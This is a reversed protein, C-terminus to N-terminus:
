ENLKEKQLTKVIWSEIQSISVPMYNNADVGVDYQRGEIKKSKGGNPSHVHGHLHFYGENTVTFPKRSPRNEGHWNETDDTGKMGSTDERYLGLLPCHSMTVREGSIYLTASNLVADFGVNYMANHKKDHNGLILVKTGKIKSVIDSLLDSSCLGVDGLIYLVSDDDLVSNFRKVLSSHMHDLDRFPRKSFELVSQHGIHLDSTFFIRKRNVM